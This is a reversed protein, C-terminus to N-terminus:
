LEAGKLGLCSHVNDGMNQPLYLFSQLKWGRLTGLTGTSIIIKTLFQEEHCYIDM